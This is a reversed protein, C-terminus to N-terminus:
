YANKGSFGYLVTLFVIKLDFWLSWNQIYELDYDVRKQMKDLTDTEGRWGNLQAWGTIGPKVKHRLMYGMILKRYQENHVVAHPRPGVVSMSGELVNFFQPLEDLSTRRLFAGLPTIRADGKKAQPVNKGDECTTMSRFKWVWVVEGNLGYRRQKFFVPGPSTAKIAIAIAMMLPSILLLILCGLIFDEVRKVWGSLGYFPTEYVSVLPIGGLDIWCTNMLESIFMDPMVYVSVTTDAFQKLLEKIRLENRLPLAIYVSDIECARVKQILDDMSGLLYKSNGVNVSLERSRRNDYIGNVVLGSWPMSDFHKVLRHGIPNHGVVAVTRINM